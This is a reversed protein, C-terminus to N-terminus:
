RTVARASRAKSTTRRTGLKTKPTARRIGVSTKVSREPASASVGSESARPSRRALQDELVRANSLAADHTSFVLTVRGRKARAGLEGLLRRAADSDLERRYRREFEGFRSPEHGYWRRLADSPALEKLWADLHADTKKLGRPWLREVLVRYGDREDAPEYARKLKVLKLRRRSLM